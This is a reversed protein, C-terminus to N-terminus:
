RGQHRIIRSKMMAQPKVGGKNLFQQHPPIPKPAAVPAKPKPAGAQSNEEPVAAKPIPAAAKATAAKAPVPKKAPAPKKASLKTIKKPV